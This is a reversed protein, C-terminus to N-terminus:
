GGTKNLVAKNQGTANTKLNTQIPKKQIQHKNNNAGHSDNSRHSGWGESNSLLNISAKNITNNLSQKPGSGQGLLGQGVSQTSPKRDKNTAFHKDDISMGHLSGKKFPM